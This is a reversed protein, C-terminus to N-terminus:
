SVPEMTGKDRNAVVRQLIQSYDSSPEPVPINESDALEDLLQGLERGAGQGIVFCLNVFDVYSAPTFMLQTAVDMKQGSQWMRALEQVPVTSSQAPPADMETPEPDIQAPEPGAQAQSQAADDVEPPAIEDDSEGLLRRLFPNYSM